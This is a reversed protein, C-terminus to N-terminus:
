SYSMQVPFSLLKGFYVGVCRICALHKTNAIGLQKTHCCWDLGSICVECCTASPLEGCVHTASPLESCVCTASPLEGCVWTANSKHSSSGPVPLRQFVVYVPLVPYSQEQPQQLWPCTFPGTLCGTTWATFHYFTFTVSVESLLDSDGHSLCLHQKCFSSMMIQFHYVETPASHHCWSKHTTFRPPHFQPHFQPTQIALSLLRLLTQSCMSPCNILTSFFRSLAIYVQTGLWAPSITRVLSANEFGISGQRPNLNHNRHKGRWHM